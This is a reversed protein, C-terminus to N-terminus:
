PACEANSADSIHVGLAGVEFGVSYGDSIRPDLACDRGEVVSAPDGCNGGICCGSIVVPGSICPVTNATTTWRIFDIRGDGNADQVLHGALGLVAHLATPCNPLLASLDIRYLAAAPLVGGLEGRLATIGSADSALDAELRANAIPFTGLTGLALAINPAAATLHGAVLGNDPHDGARVIVPPQCAFFVSANLESGPAELWPYPGTTRCAPDTGPHLVLDFTPDNTLDDLGSLTALQIVAASAILDAVYRDLQSAVATSAGLRNDAGTHPDRDGDKDDLDFGVAGSLALRTLVLTPESRCDACGDGACRNGDDCGENASLLHDGCVPASTEPLLTDMAVTTDTMDLTDPADPTSDVATDAAITDLADGDAADVRTDSAGKTTDGLCAGAALVSLLMLGTTINM